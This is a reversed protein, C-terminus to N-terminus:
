LIAKLHSLWRAFNHKSSRDAILITLSGSKRMAMLDGYYSSLLSSQVWSPWLVLSLSNIVKRLLEQQLHTEGIKGHKPQIELLVSWFCKTGQTLMLVESSESWSAGKRRETCGRPLTPYLWHCWQTDAESVAGTVKMLYEKIWKWKHWFQCSLFKVKTEFM